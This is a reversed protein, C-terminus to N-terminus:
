VVAGFRCACLLPEGEVSAAELAGQVLCNPSVSPRVLRGDRVLPLLSLQKPLGLSGADRSLPLRKPLDLPPTSLGLWGSPGVDRGALSM